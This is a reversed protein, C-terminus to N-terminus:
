VHINLLIELTFINNECKLSINGNYKKVGDTINKLGFGHQEKNDKTTEISNGNIVVNGTVTNEITILMCRGHTVVSIKIYKDEASSLTIAEIANDLANSFITSIDFPDIFNEKPLVGVFDFKIGSQKALKNKENLIADAISNGSNIDLDIGHMLFDIGSILEKAEEIKNAEILTGICVLHNKMDHKLKRTQETKEMINQYHNFQTLLQAQSMENLEVYRRNLILKDILIIVVMLYIITGTSAILLFMTAKVPLDIYERIGFDLIIITALSFLPLISLIMAQKGKLIYLKLKPTTNFNKMLYYILFFLILKLIIVWLGNIKGDITTTFLNGNFGMNTFSVIFLEVVYNLCSSISFAFIKHPITGKFLYFPAIYMYLPLIGSLNNIIIKALIYLLLYGCFYIILNRKWSAKFDIFVYIMFLWVIAEILNVSFDNLLPLVGELM